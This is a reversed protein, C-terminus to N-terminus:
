QNKVIVYVIWQLICVDNQLNLDAGAKVLKRIVETWGYYAAKMLASDGKQTIISMLIHCVCHYESYMLGRLAVHM